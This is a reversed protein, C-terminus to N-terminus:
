SYRFNGQRHMRRLQKGVELATLQPNQQGNVTVNNIQSNTENSIQGMRGSNMAMISPFFRDTAGQSNISEGGSARIHVGESSNGPILGGLARGPGLGLTSPNGVAGPATLEKIKRLTELLVDAQTKINVAAAENLEKLMTPFHVELFQRYKENQKNLEENIQPVVVELEKQEQAANRLIDAQAQMVKIQDDLKTKIAKDAVFKSIEQLEAIQQGLAALDNSSATKNIDDSAAAARGPLIPIGTTLLGTQFEQTAANIANRAALQDSKAKNLKETASRQANMLESTIKQQRELEDSIAKEKSIRDTLATQLDMEFEMRQEQFLKEDIKQSALKENMKTLLEEKKKLVEAELPDVTVPGTAVGAAKLKKNQELQTDTIQEALKGARDLTARLEEPDTITAASALLRQVEAQLKAKKGGGELSLDFAREQASKRADNLYERNKQMASDIHDNLEEIEKRSAAFLDRIKGANTIQDGHLWGALEMSIEKIESHASSIAANFVDSSGRDRTVRNRGRDKTQTEGIIRVTDELQANLEKLYNVLNDEGKGSLSDIGKRVAAASQLFTQLTKEQAEKFIKESAVAQASLLKWAKADEEFKAKLNAEKWRQAAYTMGVLAGILAIPGAIFSVTLSLATIGSLLGVSAATALTAMAAYTSVSLSAVVFSLALATVAGTLMYVVTGGWGLFLKDLYTTVDVIVGMADALLLFPQLAMTVADLLLRLNNVSGGIAKDFRNVADIMTRGFDTVFLNSIQSITKQYQYYAPDKIIESAAEYAAKSGEIKNKIDDFSGLSTDTLLGSIGRIARMDKALDAIRELGGSELEKGLLRLVGGFGYTAIAAEGSAVGWSHLLATMEDSPKILKLVINSMLTLATNPLTGQSTLMALGTNLDDLSIGLTAALNATTGMVNGLQEAKVRGVEILAFFSASVDEAHISSMGYANMAATLLDVSQTITSVTTQAFKISSAMFYFSEAGQVVQNSIAEYTGKAVEVADVGFSDSLNRLQVVWSEFGLSARQSITMIEAVRREFEVSQESANILGSIIMQLGRAILQSALTGAFIGLSGNLSKQSKAAQDCQSTYNKIIQTNRNYTNGATQLSKAIALNTTGMAMLTATMRTVAANLNNIADNMLKLGDTFGKAGTLKITTKNSLGEMKKAMDNAMKAIEKTQATMTTGMTALKEIAKAIKASMKDVSTGIADFGKSVAKFAADGTFEAGINVEKKDGAGGKTAM